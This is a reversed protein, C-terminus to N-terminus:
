IGAEPALRAQGAHRGLVQGRHPSQWKNRLSSGVLRKISDRVLHAGKGSAAVAADGDCTDRRHGRALALACAFWLLIERLREGRVPGM